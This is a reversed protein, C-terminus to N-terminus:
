KVESFKQEFLKRKEFSGWLFFNETRNELVGKKCYPGQRRTGESGSKNIINPPNERSRGM